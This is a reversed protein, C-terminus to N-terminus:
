LWSCLIVIYLLCNLFPFIYLVQFFCYHIFLVHICFNLPPSQTNSHPLTLHFGYFHSLLEIYINLTKM